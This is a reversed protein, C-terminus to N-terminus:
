FKIQNKPSFALYAVIWAVVGVGGSVMFLAGLSMVEALYGCVLAGLAGGAGFSAASYLAQGQGEHEGFFTEHVFKIAIAHMLGFSAAHGLQVLVLVSLSGGAYTTVVWRLTTVALAFLMLSRLSYRELLRHMFVFLVVEALVGEAWLLGIVSKSYGYQELFLSFFTYYAGHSVQLMLSIVFFAVVTKQRLIDVLGAFSHPQESKPEVLPVLSSLWMALLILFLCLPLHAIPLYDFLAGLLFVAVIFGISGWLRVQSYRDKHPALNHLTIVEFQPLIANWFFSFFVMAFAYWWFGKELFFLLFSASSLFAGWRVLTLRCRWRDGLWSWLNPALLKTIMLISMLQGIELHTFGESDLFLSWYPALGGLLAFFWFYFNSLYFYKKVPSGPAKAATLSSGPMLAVM